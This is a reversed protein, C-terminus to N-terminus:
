KSQIIGVIILKAGIKDVTISIKAIGQSGHIDCVTYMVDVNKIHSVSRNEIYAEDWIGQVILRPHFDWGYCVAPKVSRDAESRGLPIRSEDLEYINNVPNKPAPYILIELNSGVKLVSCGYIDELNNILIEEIEKSSFM